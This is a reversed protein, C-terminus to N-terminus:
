KFIPRRPCSVKVLFAGLANSGATKGGGRLICLVNGYRDILIRAWNTYIKSFKPFKTFKTFKTFKQLNQLNQFNTISTNGAIGGVGGGGCVCVDERCGEEQPLM